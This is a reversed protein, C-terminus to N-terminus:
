NESAINWFVHRQSLPGFKDLQHYLSANQDLFKWLLSVPDSYIHIQVLFLPVSPSLTPSSFSLALM